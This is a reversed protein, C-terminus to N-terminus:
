AFIDSTNLSITLAIWPTALSTPAAAPATDLTMSTTAARAYGCRDRWFTVRGAAALFYLGPLLPTDASCATWWRMMDVKM